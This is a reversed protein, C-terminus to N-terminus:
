SQQIYMHSFWNGVYSTKSTAKYIIIDRDKPNGDQAQPQLHLLWTLYFHSYQQLIGTM